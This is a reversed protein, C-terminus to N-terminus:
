RVPSVSVQAQDKEEEGGGRKFKKAALRPPGSRHPVTGVEVSGETVRRAVFGCFCCQFRPVGLLFTGHWVYMCVYMGLYM